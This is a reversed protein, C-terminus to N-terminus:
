SIVCRKRIFSDAKTKIDIFCTNRVNERLARKIRVGPYYAIRYYVIAHGRPTRILRTGSYTWIEEVWRLEGLSATEWVFERSGLQYWNEYRMRSECLKVIVGCLSSVLFYLNWFNWLYDNKSFVSNEGKFIHLQGM